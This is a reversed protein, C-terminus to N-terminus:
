RQNDAIEVQNIMEELHEAQLNEFNNKIKKKAYHLNQHNIDSQKNSYTSFSKQMITRTEELVPDDKIKLIKRKKTPIIKKQSTTMKQVYNM